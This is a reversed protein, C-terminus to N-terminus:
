SYSTCHASRSINKQCCAPQHDPERVNGEVHCTFAAQKGPERQLLPRRLWASALADHERLHEARHPLVTVKFAKSAAATLNLREKLEKITEHNDRHEATAAINQFTRAQTGREKLFPCGCRSCEMSPKGAVFRRKSSARRARKSRSRGHRMSASKTWFLAGRQGHPRMSRQRQSGHM